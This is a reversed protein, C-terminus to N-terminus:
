LLNRWSFSQAEMIAETLRSLQGCTAAFHVTEQQRAYIDLEAYLRDVDDMPSHDAVATTIGHASRWDQQAQRSLKQAADWDGDLAADAAAKLNEVARSHLAEMGFQLLIGLLLILVLLAVGLWLRKM